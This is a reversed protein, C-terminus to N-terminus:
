PHNRLNVITTASGTITKGSVNQALTVSVGVNAAPYNGTPICFLLTSFTSGTPTTYVTEDAGSPNGTTPHHYILSASGSGLRYWREIGDTCWFHLESTSVVGCSPSTGSGICYSVGQALRYVGGGSEIGGESIKSLVLNAGDALMQKSLGTIYATKSVYYYNFMGVVLILTIATAMLIEVLTFAKKNM